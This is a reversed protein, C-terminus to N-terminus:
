NVYSSSEVRSLYRNMAQMACQKQVHDRRTPLTRGLVLSWFIMILWLLRGCGGPIKPTLRTRQGATLLPSWLMDVRFSANIDSRMIAATQQSETLSPAKHGMMCPLSYFISRLLSDGVLALKVHTHARLWHKPGIPLPVKCDREQPIWWLHAYLQSKGTGCASSSKNVICGDLEPSHDRNYRQWQGRTVDCGLHYQRAEIGVAPSTVSGRELARLLDDNEQALKWYERVLEDPPLAATSNLALLKRGEASLIALWLSFLM